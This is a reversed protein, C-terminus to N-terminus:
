GWARPSFRLTQATAAMQRPEGGRVHPFHASVLRAVHGAPPEGGRVHPFYRNPDIVIARLRNVGVCTPFIKTLVCSPRRANPEGGRM